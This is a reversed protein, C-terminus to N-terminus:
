SFIKLRFHGYIIKIFIISSKIMKSFSLLKNLRYDEKTNTEIEINIQTIQKIMPDNTKITERYSNVQGPKKNVIEIIYHTELSLPIDILKISKNEIKLLEKGIVEDINTQEYNYFTVKLENDTVKDLANRDIKNSFKIIVIPINAIVAINLVGAFTDFFSFTTRIQHKVYEEDHYNQFNNLLAFSYYYNQEKHTLVKNNEITM